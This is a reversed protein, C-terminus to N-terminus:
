FNSRDMTIYQRHKYGGEYSKSWSPGAAEAADDWLSEDWPDRKTVAQRVTSIKTM